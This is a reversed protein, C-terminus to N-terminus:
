EPAITTKARETKLLERIEKALERIQSPATPTGGFEGFTGAWLLMNGASTLKAVLKARAKESYYLDRELGKLREGDKRLNEECVTTYHDTEDSGELEEGCDECFTLDDNTENLDRM